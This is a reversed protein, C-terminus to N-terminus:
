NGFSKKNSAKTGVLPAGNIVYATGTLVNAVGPDVSNLSANTAKLVVGTTRTLVLGYIDYIVQGTVNVDTFNTITVQTTSAGLALTFASTGVSSRVSFRVGTIGTVKFATTITLTQGSVFNLIGSSLVMGVITGITQDQAGLITFGNGFSLTGITWVGTAGRDLTTTNTSSITSVNVTQGGAMTLTAGSLFTLTGSIVLPATLTLTISAPLIINPVTFSGTLTLTGAPVFAGTGGITGSTYTVPGSTSLGNAAALTINGAVEIFGSGSAAITSAATLSGTITGGGLTLRIGNTLKLTMTLGGNLIWQNASSGSLVVATNNGLTVLGSFTATADGATVAVSATTCTFPTTITAGNTTLTGSATMVIAGTTGATVVTNSRLTISGAVNLNLTTFTLTAAAGANVTVSLVAATTINIAVSIGANIVVSDSTTPVPDGGWTATNNWNGSVSATKVAM